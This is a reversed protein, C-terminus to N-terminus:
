DSINTLPIKCNVETGKEKASVITCVGGMAATRQKMNNLGNGNRRDTNEFGKGNDSIILELENDQLM